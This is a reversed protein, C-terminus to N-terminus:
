VIKKFGWTVSTNTQSERLFARNSLQFCVVTFICALQGFMNNRFLEMRHIVAFSSDARQLAQVYNDSM